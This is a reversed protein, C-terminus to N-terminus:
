HMVSRATHAQLMRSYFSLRGEFEPQKMGTILLLTACKTLHTKRQLEGLYDGFNVLSVKESSLLSLKKREGSAASRPLATLLADCYVGAPKNVVALWEDEFVVDASAFVASRASATMARRLEVDKSAAPYPPSVPSPYEGSVLATKAEASMAALRRAPALLSRLQTAAVGAPPQLLLPLPLKTM